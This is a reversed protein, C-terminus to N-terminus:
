SEAGDKGRKGHQEEQAGWVTGIVSIKIVSVGNLRSILNCTESVWRGLNSTALGHQQVSLLGQELGWPILDWENNSVLPQFHALNHV